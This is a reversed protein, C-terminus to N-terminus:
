LYWALRGQSEDNMCPKSADASVTVIQLYRSDPIQRMLSTLLCGAQSAQHDLLKTLITMCGLSTTLLRNEVVSCAAVCDSKKNGEGKTAGTAVVWRGFEVEAVDTCRLRFSQVRCM